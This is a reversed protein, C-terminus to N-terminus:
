PNGEKWEARFQRALEFGLPHKQVFLTVARSAEASRRVLDRLTQEYEPPLRERLVAARAEDFETCSVSGEAALELLRQEAETM